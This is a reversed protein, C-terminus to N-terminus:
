SLFLVIECAGKSTDVPTVRLYPNEEFLKTLKDLILQRHEQAKKSLKEAKVTEQFFKDVESFLLVLSVKALLAYRFRKKNRFWFM